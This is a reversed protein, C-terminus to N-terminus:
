RTLTLKGEAPIYTRLYGSISDELVAPLEDFLKEFM